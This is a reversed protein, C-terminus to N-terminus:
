LRRCRDTINVCQTLSVSVHQCYKQPRLLVTSNGVLIVANDHVAAHLLALLALQSSAVLNCRVKLLDIHSLDNDKILQSITTVPCVSDQADAFFSEQMMEGQLDMKEQVHCTSNGPMNPYVRIQLEGLKAGVAKPIVQVQM